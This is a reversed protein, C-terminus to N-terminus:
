GVPRFLAIRDTEERVRDRLRKWRIRPQDRESPGFLGGRQLWIGDDLFRMAHKRPTLSFRFVTVIAGENQAQRARVLLGPWQWLRGAVVRGPRPGAPFPLFASPAPPIPVLPALPLESGDRFGEVLTNLLRRVDRPKARGAWFHAKLREQQETMAVRLADHLEDGTVGCKRMFVALSRGIPALDVPVRNARRLASEAFAHHVQALPVIATVRGAEALRMNLDTEDLYYAFAPDFGGMAAIVSRRFACNTGETRIARGPKGGFHRPPGHPLDIATRNGMRDATAATWQYSIGNRGRVFGGAADVEPAAFVATLRSLWSPEAVADDDIFAVIGAAAEALGLNRALAVNPVDNCVRKVPKGGLMALSAPDAVVVVEFDPHDQQALSTLCRRLHDPRHRSIVIVSARIASM